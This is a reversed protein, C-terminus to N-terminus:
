NELVLYWKKGSLSVKAFEEATGVWIEEIGSNGQKVYGDTKSELAAIKGNLQAVSNDCAAKNSRVTATLSAVANECSQKNAAVAATTEDLDERIQDVIGTINNKWGNYVDKSVFGNQTWSKTAYSALMGSVVDPVIARIRADTETQTYTEAKTYYQEQLYNLVAEGTPVSTASALTEQIKVGGILRDTAPNLVLKGGNQSFSDSTVIELYGGTSYVAGNAVMQGTSHWCLAGGDALKVALHGNAGTYWNDSDNGKAADIDSRMGIPMMYTTNNYNWGNANYTFSTKVVGYTHHAARTCGATGGRDKNDVMTGAPVEGICLCRALTDERSFKVSGHREHSAKSTRFAGNSDMGVLGSNSDNLATGDSLKGSGAVSYEARPVCAQGSSNKGVPAGNNVPLDTAYKMLGYVEATALDYLENVPVWGESGDVKHVWHYVDYGKTYVSELVWSSIAAWRHEGCFSDDGPNDVVQVRVIEKNQEATEREEYRSFVVRMDYAGIPLVLDEFEWFSEVGSVQAVAEASKGLYSWAGNERFYLHAYLAEASPEDGNSFGALMGFRVLRRGTQEQGFAPTNEAGVVSASRRAAFIVDGSFNGVNTNDGARFSSVERRTLESAIPVYYIHGSNCTEGETPIDEFSGVLHRVVVSGDKGDRGYASPGVQIEGHTDKWVWNGESNVNPSFGDQGKAMVGTNVWGKEWDYVLWEGVGNIEPSKGNEGCYAVGTNYSGIVWTGTQTDPKIVKYAENWFAEIFADTENFKEIVADKYEEADGAADEARVAANEAREAASEARQTVLDVANDLAGQMGSAIGAAREASAAAAEASDAAAAASVEAEAASAEARDAQVEAHTTHYWVCRHREGDMIVGMLRDPSADVKPKVLAGPEMYTVWGSVLRERAGSDASVEVVLVYQGIGMEPLTLVVDREATYTVGVNALREDTEMSRLEAYFTKGATEIREENADMLRLRVVDGAGGIVSLNLEKGVDARM